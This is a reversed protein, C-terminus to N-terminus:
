GLMLLLLAVSNLSWALSHNHSLCISAKLYPTLMLLVYQHEERKELELEVKKLYFPGNSTINVINDHKPEWVM